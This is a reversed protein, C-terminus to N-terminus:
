RLLPGLSRGFTSDFDGLSIMVTFRDRILTVADGSVREPLSVIKDTSVTDLPCTYGLKARYFPSTSEVFDDFARSLYSDRFPPAKYYMRVLRGSDALVIRWEAIEVAFQSYVTMDVLVSDHGRVLHPPSFRVKNSGIQQSLAAVDRDIEERHFSDMPPPLREPELRRIPPFAYLEDNTWESQTLTRSFLRYASEVDLPAAVIAVPGYAYKVKLLFAAICEPDMQLIGPHEQLMKNFNDEMAGPFGDTLVYWDGSSKVLGVFAAVPLSAELNYKLLVFDSNDGFTYEARLMVTSSYFEIDKSRDPEALKDIWRYVRAVIERRLTPSDYISPTLDGFTYREM